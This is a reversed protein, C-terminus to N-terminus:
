GPVTGGIRAREGEGRCAALLHIWRAQAEQNVDGKLSMLWALFSIQVEALLSEIKHNHAITFSQKFRSQSEQTFVALKPESVAQFSLPVNTKIYQTLSRWEASQMVPYAKLSPNMSGQRALETYQAIQEPTEDVFQRRETDFRKILITDPDLYACFHTWTGKSIISVYHFGAPVDRFGRFGGQIDYLMLDLQIAQKPLDRLILHSM